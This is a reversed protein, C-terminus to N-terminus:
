IIEKIRKKRFEKYNIFGIKIFKGKKFSVVDNKHIIYKRKNDILITTEFRNDIKKLFINNINNKSEDIIINKNNTSAFTVFSYLPYKISPIIKGNINKNLGTSGLPTSISIFSGKFYEINGNINLEYEPYDRITEGIVMENIATGIKVNNVYCDLTPTKIFKIKLKENKIDKLIKNFNKEKYFNLLFNLTGNAIGYYLVNKDLNDRISNIFTGDGGISVIIDIDKKTKYKSNIKEYLKEDFTYVSINKMKKSM